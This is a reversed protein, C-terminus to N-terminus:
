LYIYIKTNFKYCHIFVYTYNFTKNYITCVGYFLHKIVYKSCGIWLLFLFELEFMYFWM